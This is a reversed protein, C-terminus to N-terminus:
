RGRDRRLLRATDEYITRRPGVAVLEIVRKPAVRYIIRFRGVRLSRLGALDDHLEKGASPDERILDLGARVKRKLGPHLDGILDHV